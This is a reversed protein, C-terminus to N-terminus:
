ISSGSRKKKKKAPMSHILTGMVQLSLAFLIKEFSCLEEIAIFLAELCTLEDMAM